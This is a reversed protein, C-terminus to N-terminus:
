ATGRWYNVGVMNSKGSVSATIQGVLTSAVLIKLFSFLQLGVLLGDAIAGSLVSAKSKRGEQGGEEFGLQCGRSRWVRRGGALVM